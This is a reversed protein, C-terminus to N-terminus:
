STSARGDCRWRQECDVLRRPALRRGLREGRQLGGKARVADHRRAVRRLDDVARGRDQDRALPGRRAEPQLRARPEHGEPEGADVRRPHQVAVRLRHLLRKRFCAEGEVVHIHDLHVLRERGDDQLRRLIQM